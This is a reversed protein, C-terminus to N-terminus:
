LSSKNRRYYMSLLRSVYAFIFEFSYFKRTQNNKFV